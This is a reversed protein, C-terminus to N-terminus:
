QAAMPGSIVFEQLTFGQPGLNQGDSLDTPEQGSQRWQRHNLQDDVIRQDQSVRGLGWARGDVEIVAM